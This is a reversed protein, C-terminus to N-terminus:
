YWFEKQSSEASVSKRCFHWCCRYPHPFGRMQKQWVSHKSLKCCQPAKQPILWFACLHRKASHTVWQLTTRRDTSFVHRSNDRWLRAGRTGCQHTVWRKGTQLPSFTCQCFGQSPLYLFPLNLSFSSKQCRLDCSFCQFSWMLFPRQHTERLLFFCRWLTVDTTWWDHM